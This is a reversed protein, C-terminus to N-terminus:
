LVKEFREFYGLLNGNDDRVARMFVKENSPTVVLFREDEGNILKDYQFLIADRSRETHFDFITNGLLNTFGRKAYKEVAFDNVFRIVHETDVFVIPEKLSNLLAVLTDLNLM